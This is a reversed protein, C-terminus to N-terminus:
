LFLGAIAVIALVAGCGVAFPYWPNASSIRSTEAILKAIEKHMMEDALKQEASTMDAVGKNDM